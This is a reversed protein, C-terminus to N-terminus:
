ARVGLLVGRQVALTLSSALSELLAQDLAVSREEAVARVLEALSQKTDRSRVLLALFFEEGVYWRVEDVGPPRYMLLTGSIPAPDGESPAHVAYGLSLLRLHPNWVPCGEFDLERVGDQGPRPVAGDAYSLRWKSEEFSLLQEAFAPAAALCLADRRVFPAFDACVERIFRSQPPAAVLYRAFCAEFAEDGIVACFQKFALKTMGVLRTRIM